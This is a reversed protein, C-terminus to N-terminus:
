FFVICIDCHRENSICTVSFNQEHALGQYIPQADSRMLVVPCIKAFVMNVWVSSPFKKKKSLPCGTTNINVFLINHKKDSVVQKYVCLFTM